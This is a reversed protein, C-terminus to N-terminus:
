WEDDDCRCQFKGPRVVQLDCDERDCMEAQNGFGDDVIRDQRQENKEVVLLGQSGHCVGDLCADVAFLYSGEMEATIGPPVCFLVEENDLFRIGFSGVIQGPAGFDAIDYIASIFVIAPNSFDGRLSVRAEQGQAIVISSM